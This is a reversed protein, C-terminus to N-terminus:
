LDYLDELNLYKEIFHVCVYQPVVVNATTRGAMLSILAKDEHPVWIAFVKKKLILKVVIDVM